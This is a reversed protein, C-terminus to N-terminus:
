PWEFIGWRRVKWRLGLFKKLEIERLSDPLQHRIPFHGGLLGTEDNSMSSCYDLLKFSFLRLPEGIAHVM